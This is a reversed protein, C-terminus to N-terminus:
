LSKLSQFIVCLIIESNQNVNRNYEGSRLEEMSPAFIDKELYELQKPNLVGHVLLLNIAFLFVHVTKMIIDRVSSHIVATETLTNKDTGTQVIKIIKIKDFPNFSM